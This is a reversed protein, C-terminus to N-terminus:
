ILGGEWRKEQDVAEEGKFVISDFLEVWHYPFDPPSTRPGDALEAFLANLYELRIHGQADMKM